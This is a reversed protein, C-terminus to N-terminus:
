FDEISDLLLACKNKILYNMIGMKNRVPKSSIYAEVIAEVIREPIFAFDVLTENRIWRNIEEQNKCARIGLRMFEDLRAANMPKQRLGETVLVADDNLVSPIGDDGAKAIHKNHGSTMYNSEAKVLAKTMPSWQSVNSYRHLQKFDHDSSIIMMPQPEDMLPGHVLENWQSWAVLTAIVDDGEAGEVEIVKYPFTAILEDRIKEITAFIQKWPLGSKDRAKKRSGKYYPFYDRRWYSKSDCCIVVEGYTGHYRKRDAQITSLVVHRILNEMGDPDNKLESSFALLANIARHSYDVLIM